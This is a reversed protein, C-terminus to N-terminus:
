YPVTISQVPSTGTSEVGKYLTTVYYTVTQGGVVASDTASLTKGLTKLLIFNGSCDQRYVNFGDYNGVPKGWILNVKHNIREAPIAGLSFLSGALAIFLLLKTKM